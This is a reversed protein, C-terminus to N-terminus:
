SGQKLRYFQTLNTASTNTYNFVNSPAVNTDIATWSTLDSSIEIIYTKGTTGSITFQFQGNNLRMPASLTPPTVNNVTITGTMGAPGYLSDRYPFPGPSNFVLSASEDPQVVFTTWAGTDSAVDHDEADQNVWTVTDGVDIELSAPNFTLVSTMNVFHETAYVFQTALIELATGVVLAIRIKSLQSKM